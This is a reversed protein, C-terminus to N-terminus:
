THGGCDPLAHDDQGARRLHCVFLKDRQHDPQDPVDVPNDVDNVPEALGLGTIGRGIIDWGLWRGAGLTRRTVLHGIDGRGTVM